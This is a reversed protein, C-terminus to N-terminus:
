SLERDLLRRRHLSSPELHNQGALLVMISTLGHKLKGVDALVTCDVLLIQTQILGPLTCSIYSVKKQSVNSLSQQQRKSDAIDRSSRTESM